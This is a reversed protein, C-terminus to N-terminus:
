KSLNYRENAELLAIKRALRHVADKEAQQRMYSSLAYAIFALTLLYLLLDAGRGVGVAHALRNTINPFIVTVAMSVTLLLLAIKKWARHVHTPRGRLGILLLVIAAIIIIAQIATM